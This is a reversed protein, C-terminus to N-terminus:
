LVVSGAMSRVEVEKRIHDQLIARCVFGHFPGDRGCEHVYFSVECHVTLYNCKATAERLCM